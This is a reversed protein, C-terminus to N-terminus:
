PLIDDVQFFLICVTERGVEKLLVRPNGDDLKDKEGGAAVMAQPIIGVVKGGKELASGSVVGM